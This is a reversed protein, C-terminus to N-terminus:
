AGGQADPQQANRRAAQYYDRAIKIRSKDAEEENHGENLIFWAMERWNFACSENALMRFLRALLRHLTPGRAALLTGLREESYFAREGPQQAGGLYLTKGVPSSSSHALGAGHAMLAIGHTILGWKAVDLNRPMGRQSVLKWFVASNPTSPEMRRLSAKEGTSMEKAEIAESINSIISGFNSPIPREIPEPVPQWTGPHGTPGNKLVDEIEAWNEPRWTYAPIHCALAELWEDQEPTTTSDYDRKLEAAILDIKGTDPNKRFM